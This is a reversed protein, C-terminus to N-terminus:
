KRFYKGSVDQIKMKYTENSVKKEQKYKFEGNNIVMDGDARCKICITVLDDSQKNYIAKCWFNTCVAQVIEIKPQEIVPETTNEVINEQAVEKKSLEKLKSTLSM